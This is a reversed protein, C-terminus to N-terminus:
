TPPACRPELRCFASLDLCALAGPRGPLSPLWLLSTLSLYPIEVGAGELPGGYGGAGADGVGWAVCRWQRPGRVAAHAARPRKPTACPPERAWKGKIHGRNSLTCGMVVVGAKTAFVKTALAQRAHVKTARAVRAKVAGAWACRGDEADGDGGGAALWGGGWGGSPKSAQPRPGGGGGSRGYTAGIGCTAGGM